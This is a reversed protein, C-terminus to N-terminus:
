TRVLRVNSTAVKARATTDAVSIPRRKEGSTSGVRTYSPVSVRANASSIPAARAMTSGRALRNPGTEGLACARSSATPPRETTPIKTIIEWVLSYWGNRYRPPITSRARSVARSMPTVM